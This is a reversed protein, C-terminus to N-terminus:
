MEGEFDVLGLTYSDSLQNEIVAVVEFNQEAFDGATIEFVSGLTVLTVRSMSGQLTADTDQGFTEQLKEFTVRSLRISINNEPMTNFAFVSSGDLQRVSARVYLDAVSGLQDAADAVVPGLIGRM